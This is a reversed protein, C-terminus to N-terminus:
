TNQQYQGTVRRAGSTCSFSAYFILATSSTKKGTCQWTGLVKRTCRYSKASRCAHFAKLVKKATSCSAGKQKLTFNYTPKDGPPDQENPLLVCTKLGTAAQAHQAGGLLALLALAVLAALVATGILPSSRRTSATM